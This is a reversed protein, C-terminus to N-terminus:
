QLLQFKNTMNDGLSEELPATCLFSSYTLTSVICLDSLTFSVKLAQDHKALYFVLSQLATDCVGFRSSLCYLITSYDINDIAVSWDLFVM